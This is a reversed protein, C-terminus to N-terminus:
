EFFATVVDYFHPQKNKVSLEIKEDNVPGGPAILTVTDGKTLREPKITKEKRDTNTTNAKLNSTAFIATTGIAMSKIFPRRKM